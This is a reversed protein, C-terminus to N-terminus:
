ICASVKQYVVCVSALLTIFDYCFVYLSVEDENQSSKTVASKFPCYPGLLTISERITSSYIDKLTVFVRKLFRVSRRNSIM